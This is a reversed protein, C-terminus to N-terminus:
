VHARGIEDIESFSKQMNPWTSRTEREFYRLFGANDISYKELRPIREELSIWKDITDNSAYIGMEDCIDYAINKKQADIKGAKRVTALFDDLTM